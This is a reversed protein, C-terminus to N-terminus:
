RAQSQERLPWLRRLHCGFIDHGYASITKAVTSAAGGVSFFRRAVDQGAGIEAFAGYIRPDMNIQFAKKEVQLEPELPM